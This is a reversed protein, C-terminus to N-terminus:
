AGSKVPDASTKKDSVLSYPNNEYALALTLQASKSALILRQADIPSLAVTVMPSAVLNNSSASSATQNGIAIVLAEPLLVKTILNGSSAGQTAFIAVKSGPMVFNGVRSVDDVSITVALMGKPISLGINPKIDTTFFSSFLIQGASLPGRTKLAADLKVGPVLADAPISDAPLQKVILQSSNLIEQYSTGSAIETKAVYVPKLKNDNQIRNQYSILYLYAGLGITVSLLLVSIAQTRPNRLAKRQSKM